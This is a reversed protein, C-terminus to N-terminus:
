DRLVLQNELKKVFVTRAMKQVSSVNLETKVVKDGPTLFGVKPDYISNDLSCKVAHLVPRKAKELDSLMSECLKKAEQPIDKKSHRVKFKAM